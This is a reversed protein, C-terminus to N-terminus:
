YGIVRVRDPFRGGIEIIEIFGKKELAKITATNASVLPMGDRAKEWCMKYLDYARTNKEVIYSRRAELWSDFDKYKRAEDIDRKAQELVKEQSETLKM